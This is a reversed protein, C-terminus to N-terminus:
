RGFLSKAGFLVFVIVLFAVFYALLTQAPLVSFAAWSDNLQGVLRGGTVDADSQGPGRTLVGRLYGGVVFLVLALLTTSGIQTSRRTALAAILVAGMAILIAIVDGSMFTARIVGIVEDLFQQM